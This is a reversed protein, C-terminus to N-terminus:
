QSLTVTNAMLSSPLLRIWQSGYTLLVLKWLNDETGWVHDYM